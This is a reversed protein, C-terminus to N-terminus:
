AALKPFLEKGPLPAGFTRGTGKGVDGVPSWVERHLRLAHNIPVLGAGGDIGFIQMAYQTLRPVALNGAIKEQVAGVLHSAAGTAAQM